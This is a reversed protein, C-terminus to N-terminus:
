GRTRYPRMDIGPYRAEVGAVTAANWYPDGPRPFGILNRQRVTATALFHHMRPDSARPPWSNWLMFEHGSRRFSMHVSWRHQEHATMRSGRHLTSMDYIFLTGAPGTVAVEQAYLDPHEDRSKSHPTLPVDASAKRSVVYTPGSSEDVDTLYCIIAIQRYAPDDRPVVLTNNHFDTHLQQEFDWTGAYKGWLLFSTMFIHDSELTTELFGLLDDNGCIDNLGDGDFPFDIFAYPKTAQPYREQDQAFQSWSPLHAAAGEQASTLADGDLWGPVVVFSHEAFHAVHEPTIPV